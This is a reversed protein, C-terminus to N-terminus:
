LFCEPMKPEKYLTALRNQADKVPGPKITRANRPCSKICACCTICEVPDIAASNQSDIAGVPCVAACVGCQECQDGVDIFDVDWLKTVGGYPHTGPVGVLSGQSIASLSQLKELVKRGFEEARSLDDENPRGHAVPTESHSFSHEGIFAAAAIPICGRNTVRDKLELLSNEYARNGYVVVVVAPTDHAQISNLWDSLLDPVRGMYVPVAVVLLDKESTRLPQRRADPTTIDIVETTSADIGRAIGQAVAKTTGTPSFCALKVADIKM